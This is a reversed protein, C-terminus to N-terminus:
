HDCWPGRCEEQGRRFVGLLLYRRLEVICQRKKIALLLAPLERDLMTHGSNEVNFQEHVMPLMSVLLLLFIFFFYFCLVM